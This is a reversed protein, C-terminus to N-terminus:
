LTTTGTDVFLADGRNFLQAAREGVRRKETAAETLRVDFTGEDRWEPIVASGHLKRIRGEESLVTLDRRITEKSAGLREALEEVSVKKHERVLDVIRERREEPKVRVEAEPIASM